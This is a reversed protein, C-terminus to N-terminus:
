CVLHLRQSDLIGLVYMQHFMLFNALMQCFLRLEQFAKVSSFFLLLELLPTHVFTATVYNRRWVGVGVSWYDAPAVCILQRWISHRVGSLYVLRRWIVAYSVSWEVGNMTIDLQLSPILSNSLYDLCIDFYYSWHLDIYVQIKKREKWKYSNRVITNKM